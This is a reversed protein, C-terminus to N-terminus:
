GGGSILAYGIIALVVAGAIYKIMPNMKPKDVVTSLKMKNMLLQFGKKNTGNELSDNYNVLPSFPEVSWSPLIIMPNKKWQLVYGASALRPVGEDMFSQEEIKVKKFTVNSNENIKMVTIYNLKASAPNVKASFPLRFKKVKKVKVNANNQNILEKLEKLEDKLM